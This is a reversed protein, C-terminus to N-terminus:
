AAGGQLRDILDASASEILDDLWQQNQPDFDTDSGVMETPLKKLLSNLEMELIDSKDDGTKLQQVIAVLSQLPGELDATVVSAPANKSRVSLKELWTRQEGHSVTVSRLGDEIQRSNRHLQTHLPTTGILVVRAVLMRDDITRLTHCLWAQYADMIDDTNEIEGADLQCTEWRITDLPFFTSHTQDRSDIDVILCGKPGSERIHRGQINGSFAIPAGGPIGHQGRVHIHGLAWYDYEKDTLQQPTCPAYNDHGETGSLSTHMLGLNFMGRNAAPYQGVMGEKEERRGFSRGHVSIGIKEFVRTDVQDAAMMIDSGDPNKPLPLSSTMVNAADHNGRIVVVPINADILRTAQSVFFLGTNQDRWDGDYLDGAIVVLDVQEDIALRTMNELACRSAGRIKEAPADHYSGLKQLPSDLHIDAAHLIKRATM